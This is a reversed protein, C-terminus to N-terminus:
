NFYGTKPLVKEPEEPIHVITTWESKADVVIDYYTGITQTQNTFTQNDEITELVKCKMTPATVQTFGVDVKGFDFYTEVIYEDEALSLKTFDLLYNENTNLKYKFVLYDQSKNTKYLVKYELDESWTGSYMSQLRVYDTPIYDIWSFTDLYINSKNSINYFAYGVYGNPKTEISGVKEVDVKIDTANNEIVLPITEHNEVIEFEYSNENLLFYPSGPQLEKAYYKGIPILDSTAIGNEDTIIEQILEHNQNYIGFKTNPLTQKTTSDIKTIELYGKIKENEFTVSTIENHKLTVTLIEESLVYEKLTIDELVKYEMDIPLLKSIAKGDANTVITDVINNESDLINFTVGELFIENNDKDVKIVEIQGKKKENTFTVSSIENHKLEITQTEETLVYNDLTKSERLTYSQDIPLMSSIAEGNKDTTITEVVNNEKDLIEFTVGELLIENNDLDTKIVKVQGKKKENEFTISTIENYELQVKQIEETLVYENLTIYELVTYEMDIPLLKSIAKGNTDTVITDVLNNNSDFVQFTVGELFIENNDKDIKIVEIQGKKKENTLTVSIIENEKLEIETIEDSLVYNNLTEREIITYKSDIPLLSSTAEGKENTKITDVKNGKEDLIDFVVGELLIENNDLDTKIVKVQGKKKENEFTVSTLKNYEVQITKTEETLVYNEKTAVERITFEENIPLLKTIAIGNSNTVVTDVVSNNKDLIEFTVGDLYINNIDKDVKVIEIQGKKKENTFTLESIKNHELTITQPEENLVYLDDTKTEKVIYSKDIPLKKSIAEGNSDTILTDVLNNNEDYVKFEVDPIVVERNDLDVKIVKIQGKKKINEITISSTENAKLEVTKIDSNLVYYENTRIERLRLSDYDRIAYRNTTTIGKENTVITELINNNQDLVQFVVGALKIDNNEKDVKVVQITGKKLENEVTTTITTDYEITITTDEALNYWKGTNKEILKYKGIRLNNITFEGNVDTTYTGVVKQFEESYLDFIVNGLAIKNNDKDVKYVTVHGKKHENEITKTVTKNYEVTVEFEASNLIYNSNTSIEKLIYNGIRINNFFAEGKSNTTAKGIVTGDTKQLQFTVGEIGKSTEDDIKNIKINGKKYDNTINLTTTENYKVNASFTSSNLVYNQNTATEKLTYNGIRINNFYLEGKSDTTGTQVVKGNSDILQFTVGKIPTSTESDTKNIKIHGRKIDNTINMASTKNYEVNVDFSATNLLYKENTSIEKLIYSGIRLNNFYAEGNTNTTATGIPTGDTKLLQFTVGPIAASTESDTKNIKIHGKKYDNTITKTVTTNYDVTVEFSNTNLVYHSDTSTEKLTYKGVRLNYFYLEGNSNTTGSAVVSGSSNLLNFGVNAIPVNTESDVKVVKLNGKKYYNSVTINSTKNYEVSIDYLQSNLIYNGVTSIERVKYNGQYLNSFTAIGNANTTATAVQTGDPKQLQFVVGQITSGTDADIKKVQINGTNVSSSLTAMASYDGYPDMTVAYDQTNAKTTKGFFVPYTKCKTQLAIQANINSTLSSKPIVVKFNNGANFTTQATLGTNAVYSNAPMNNTSTIIYQSMSIDSSVSYEQTYYNGEEKLNGVKSISVHPEEYVQTGNRAIDVMKEMADVIKKGAEDKGRYKARVDRDLMVCNVAQKTAFYADYDTEVGLESASKYPFGNVICRYIREDDLLKTLEVTYSGAEDVGDVGHLICYAPYKVGNEVYAIYDIKVESWGVSFKYEVNRRCKGQSELKASDGFTAATSINTPIYGLLNFLILILAIVKKIIRKFM